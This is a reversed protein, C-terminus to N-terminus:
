FTYARDLWELILDLDKERDFSGLIVTILRTDRFSVVALLNQRAKESTGTKGGLFYPKDVLSNINSITRSTTDNLPQVLQSKVRTWNFIEPKNEIIYKGLRLMDSASSTNEDTLGSGDFIVTQAMGLERAKQNVLRTFEDKGVYNEFAAAADNSSTLLMIKLLDRSSFVEGSRLGGAEGETAVATEDIVIKKDEGVNELVVLATLLKTLSATPWSQYTNYNFFPFSDDLSQVLVVEASVRPDLVDWNRVPAQKVEFNKANDRVNLLSAQEYSFNSSVEIKGNDASVSESSSSKSPSEGVKTVAVSVIILVALILAQVQTKM